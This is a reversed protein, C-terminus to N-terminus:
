IRVICNFLNNKKEKILFNHVFFFISLFPHCMLHHDFKFIEIAAMCQVSVDKCLLYFQDCKVGTQELNIEELQM